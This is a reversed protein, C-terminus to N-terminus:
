EGSATMSRAALPIRPVDGWLKELSYYTRAQAEFIHVVVDGYDMLVWHSETAGEVHSPHIGTRALDQGIGDAIANAQTSTNGSCIVFYDCFTSLTRLDLILIEIAKKSEAADACRQASELSNHM